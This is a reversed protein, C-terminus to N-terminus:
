DSASTLLQLKVPFVATIIPPPPIHFLLADGFTVLQVKVDLEAFEPPPINLSDEDDGTTSLQVKLDFEACIPPPILLLLEVGRTVLQIKVNFEAVM